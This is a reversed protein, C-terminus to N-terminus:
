RVDIAFANDVMVNFTVVDHHHAVFPGYPKHAKSHGHRHLWIGTVLILFILGKPATTTPHLIEDSKLCQPELVSSDRNIYPTGLTKSKRMGPLHEEAM